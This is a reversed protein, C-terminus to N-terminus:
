CFQVILCFCLHWQYLTCSLVGPDWKLPLVLSEM